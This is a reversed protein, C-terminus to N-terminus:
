RKPKAGELLPQVTMEALVNGRLGVEKGAVPFQGLRRISGFRRPIQDAEDDLILLPMVAEEV